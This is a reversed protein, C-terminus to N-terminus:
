VHNEQAHRKHDRESYGLRGLRNRDEPFDHHNHHHSGPMYDHRQKGDSLKEPSSGPKRKRSSSKPSRFARDADDFASVEGEEVNELDSGRSSLPKLGQHHGDEDDQHKGHHSSEHEPRNSPKPWSQRRERKTKETEVALEIGDELEREILDDEDMLDTKRTMDGRTKRRKELAAKVKDKDIKKIAELGKKIMKVLGRQGMGQRMKVKGLNEQYLSPEHEHYDSSEGDAKHDSASRMETSGYDNSRNQSTRSPGSINDVYPQDSAPKSAVPKSTAPKLPTGGGHANSMVYEENAAPAKSTARHAAGGGVSGEVESGQSPPVRNQEYLELMQNSVEELQRPTVDFEQWWVKEGDSPLKVKLFKAALFIAGAAIHHPKFQLCLSTATQMGGDNVFNWAVQALANQAVKFKKIAEVLPKYPHHVNLDFGLTALVVREGLLILEKQQEYVEKQKIRQVAAPDKKNIIEYSVLIVDKLPRPTEEVKGALFMCVTAITPIPPPPNPEQKIPPTHPPSNSSEIM